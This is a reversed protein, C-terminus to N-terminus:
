RKNTYIKIKTKINQIIKLICSEPIFKYDNLFLKELERYNLYLRTKNDYNIM